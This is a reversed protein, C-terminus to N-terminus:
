GHRRRLADVVAGLQRKVADLGQRLHLDNFDTDKPQRTAAAFVPWVLDCGVVTKAVRMAAKRGPNSLEGTIQDRTRWDDDACILIRSTPYLARVLPVVHELNGADLAVFVPLTHDVAMRLTLGTAYGECVLVMCGEPEVDGLRVACGPKAFGKTFLKVGDPKIRQVARLAQERPLDYRLLPVLVTGDPLYRCAEGVVGKRELYPSQGEPKARRWLAVADLAALEAEEKRKADALAQAAAREAAMREREAQSLGEWDVQVKISEGSKYSGFRGVIFTGGTDPRFEQLWYWWKGGKGCTRRKPTPVRLPLDRDRFEVGFAEMQQLVKHYNDM